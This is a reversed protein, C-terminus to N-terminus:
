GRPRNWRRGRAKAEGSFSVETFRILEAIPGLHSVAGARGPPHM